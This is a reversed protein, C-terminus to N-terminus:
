VHLILLCLNYSFQHITLDSNRIYTFTSNNYRHSTNSLASLSVSIACFQFPIPFNVALRRFNTFPQITHWWVTKNSIRKIFLVADRSNRDHNCVQFIAARNWYDTLNLHKWELNNDKLNGNCSRTATPSGPSSTCGRWHPGQCFQWCACSTELYHVALGARDLHWWRWVRVM